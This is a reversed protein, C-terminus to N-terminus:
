TNKKPNAGSAYADLNNQSYTGVSLNSLDINTKIDDAHMCVLGKEIYDEMIFTKCLLKHVEVPKSELRVVPYGNNGVRHALVYGDPNQVSIVYVEGEKNIWANSFGPILKSEKPMPTFIGCLSNLKQPTIQGWVGKNNKLKYYTSGTKRSHLKMNTKTVLDIVKKDSYNYRNYGQIKM